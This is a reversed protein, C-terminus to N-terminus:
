PLRTVRLRLYGTAAAGTATALRVTTLWSAGQDVVSVTEVYAPGSNWNVLDNSQEVVVSVDTATKSQTYSMTFRGNVVTPHFPNVNVSLPPLGMAYEMLNVVRDQDPDALDGSIAPNTLQPASFNALRWADIPRDHIVITANSLSTLNYGASPLLTFLVARDGQPIDNPIPMVVLNTAISGAALNINTPLLVYDVGGTATGSINLSVTLSSLNTDGRVISVRGPTPGFEGAAPDSAVIEVQPLPGQAAGGIPLFRVGDAIVYGTTNDNRIMVYGGSGANFNTTILRYWGGSSSQQNVLVRNTGAAHVIDYPTNTARNPDAVWWAYVEYTGNTALTPTYRVWKTGKGANGDHWYDANWGGANAGATWGTTNATGPGGQDLIYGNTQASAASWSLVQGDARLQASLKAYNLKAVPVNDDIAFSAATGASQGLIMLVPEMRISAFAVHSASLAFVCFVNQCQNSSPIISRYSIGYPYPVTGFLSGEQRTLGSVALRQLPHCDTGYAALGVPDAAFRRGDTDQQIMVYDSVMRRAERVYMQHPWGGTDVFEDKALQWSQMQTRINLPVNTSTALFTLLGRIFDEHAQRIVERGAFTNTPYTFNYGVYDTSLEGNANIDTKGNPVLNTQVNIIQDLQVGGDAAVRAAIYRRVLEYQSESYGTPAAIAIQNTPNRTLCLRYNYVQVKADGQGVTGAGGAQVLPLLGSNTNGAVLYPDYNYSGGPSKIGAANEAYANTGERGVTFTVGAMAMLDGEYTTDIYERAKYISGDSMQVATIVQGTKTVSILHQNTYVTVGAQAAMQWFVNEAVRPEFYYKKTGLGYAQGVRLYFEGALGGIYGSGLSGIDTVGLGGSTMGGLHNNVTILTVSKGLRAAAVAATVGGSTGGYVCVDSEITASGASFVSALLCGVALTPHIRLFKM